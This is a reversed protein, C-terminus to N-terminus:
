SRKFKLGTGLIHSLTESAKESTLLGKDFLTEILMYQSIALDRKQGIKFDRRIKELADFEAWEPLPSGFIDTKKFAKM